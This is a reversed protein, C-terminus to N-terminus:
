ACFTPGRRRGTFTGSNARGPPPTRATRATPRRLDKRAAERRRPERAERVDAERRLGRAAQARGDDTFQFRIGMGAPHEETARTRTSRGCSRATSSSSIPRGPFRCSSCSSPARGRAAQEHPHVHRGQLHEERLRRLVHENAQLRGAAHDRAPSLAAPRLRQPRGRGRRCARRDRSAHELFDADKNTPMEAWSPGVVNDCARRAPAICHGSCAM